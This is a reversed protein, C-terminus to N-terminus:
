KVASNNAAGSSKNPASPKIEVYDRLSEVLSPGIGRVRELDEVSDFDATEREKIIAEAKAPGIGPIAELEAMSASNVDVQLKNGEAFGESGTAALAALSIACVLFARKSLGLFQHLM